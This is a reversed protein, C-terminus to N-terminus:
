NLAVDYRETRGSEYNKITQIPGTAPVTENPLLPSYNDEESLEDPIMRGHNRLRRKLSRTSPAAIEDRVQETVSITSPDLRKSPSLQTTMMFNSSGDPLEQLLTPLHFGYAVEDM